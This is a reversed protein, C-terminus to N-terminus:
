HPAVVRDAAQQQPVGRLLEGALVGDGAQLHFRWAMTSRDLVDEVALLAQGGNKARQVAAGADPVDDVVQLGLPEELAARVDWHPWVDNCYLPEARRPREELLHRCERTLEAVAGGLQVVLEAVIQDRHDGEGVHRRFLRGPDEFPDVAGTRRHVDDIHRPGAGPAWIKIELLLDFRQKLYEVGLLVAPNVGFVMSRVMATAVPSPKEVLSMLRNRSISFARRRSATACAALAAARATSKRLVWIRVGCASASGYKL